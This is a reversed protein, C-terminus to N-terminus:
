RAQIDKENSDRGMMNLTDENFPPCIENRAAQDSRSDETLEVSDTPQADSMRLQELRLLAVNQDLEGPSPSPQAINQSMAADDGRIEGATNAM